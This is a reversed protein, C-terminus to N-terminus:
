QGSIAAVRSSLEEVGTGGEGAGGEEDGEQMDGDWGDDEDDDFLAADEAALKLTTSPGQSSSAGTGSSGDGAIFRLCFSRDTSM